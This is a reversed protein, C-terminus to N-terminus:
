VACPDEAATKVAPAASATPAAAPAPASGAVTVQEAGAYSSGVVVELTRTLAPDLETRSGPLAAALTRASDAKDPGHYVTTTRASSGRNDPADVMSFGVAALDDYATRGLGTVGAGNYVRVRVAEPRVILPSPAPTPDGAEPTGPPVDNRLGAFLEAAKPEDLLVVSQRDRTGSADAVPVTSFIVGGASFTRFRVALDRLDDISTDDDVQVADTAVNLVGNLKFPNLLTGASLTKRVIAGIFQQQRAIRDLDGRPLGKRQRVFALAQAGQITQRGAELDIGSDKEKAPQSLCVEVGGLTNVMSQFGEFDIQMYNDVRLSSLTEITRILLAPGGREFASNLKGEHEEVQEGTAPDRFAPITVWSDRPFSVLQAKDSDGYLHALIMTDSRQGTVFEEGSGQTGEGAALDGRTDSGVILINRADRPTEQPRDELATFVGPIRDIQRDYKNVLLYGGVAVALVSFSTLVALLSLARSLRGGKPAPRAGAPSPSTRRSGHPRRPARPDLHPPLRQGAAPGPRGPQAGPRSGAPRPPQGGPVPRGSRAPPLPRGPPRDQPESV